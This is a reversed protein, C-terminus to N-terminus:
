ETWLNYRETKGIKLSDKGHHNGPYRCVAGGTCLGSIRNHPLFGGCLPCGYGECLTRKKEEKLYQNMRAVLASGIGHKHYAADVFLLSIRNRNRVSIVGVIRGDTVAVLMPYNGDLFMRYIVGDTLFNKFNLIGEESYDPAEFEMFTKWVMDVVKEWDEPTAWRIEYSLESMKNM